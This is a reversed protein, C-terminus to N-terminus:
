PRADKEPRLTAHRHMLAVARVFADIDANYLYPELQLLQHDTLDWWSSELLKSILEPAFRYRVLRAPNGVMIAYPLVNRAIVAGAGIVAGTGITVGSLVIANTGIWVDHGLVIPGRSVADLNPYPEEIDPKLHPFLLTRFPFLSPLETRHDLHALLRVGPAISCFNGIRIPSQATANPVVSSKVGYTGRGISVHPMNLIEPDPLHRRWRRWRNFISIMNSLHRTDYGLLDHIGYPLNLQGVRQVSRNSASCDRIKEESM